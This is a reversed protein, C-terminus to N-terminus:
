KPAEQTTLLNPYDSLISQAGNELMHRALSVDNITAIAFEVGSEDLVRLQDDSLVFSTAHLIQCDLDSMIKVPDRPPVVVAFARPINPAMRRAVDLSRLSFSSLYLNSNNSPWIELLEAIAIEATEVDDGATPKLELQLGIELDLVIELLERLTPVKEADYGDFGTPNASLSRVYELTSNAVWGTGNTTRDLEDDHIIVTHDDVTIKVDVEVWKAGMDKALRVAGLTNEPAFASAGRHAVLQESVFPKICTM